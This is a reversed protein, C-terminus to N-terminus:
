KLAAVAARWVDPDGLRVAQDVGVNELLLALMTLRQAETFFLMADCMEIKRPALYFREIADEHPWPQGGRGIRWHRVRLPFQRVLHSVFEDLQHRAAITFRDAARSRDLGAVEEVTNSRERGVDYRQHPLWDPGVEAPMWVYAVDGGSVDRSGKRGIAIGVGDGLTWGLVNAKDLVPDGLLATLRQEAQELLTAPNLM